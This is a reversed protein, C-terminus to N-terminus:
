WVFRDVWKRSAADLANRDPVLYRNDDMDMLLMGSDSLFRISDRGQITFTRSGRDTEVTWTQDMFFEKIGLGRQVVPVFYQRALFRALLQRSAPPLEAPAKLIGIEVGERDRFAVYGDPVTLAFVRAAQVDQHDQGDLTLVLRGRADEALAMQGGVLWRIDPNADPQPAGRAGAAGAQLNPETAM